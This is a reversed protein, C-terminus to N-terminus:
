DKYPDIYINGEIAKKQTLVYVDKTTAFFNVLTYFVIHHLTYSFHLIIGLRGLCSLWRRRRLSVIYKALSCPFLICHGSPHLASSHSSWKKAYTWFFLHNISKAHTHWRMEEKFSLFSSWSSKRRWFIAVFFFM